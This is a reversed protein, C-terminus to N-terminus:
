PSGLGIQSTDEYSSSILICVSLSIHACPSLWIFIYYSPPWRFVLSFPMLLFWVQWCRSRPSGVGQGQVALRWFRGLISEQGNFARTQPLLPLGLVSSIWSPLLIVCLSVERGGAKAPGWPRSSRLGGLMRPPSAPLPSVRLGSPPRPLM